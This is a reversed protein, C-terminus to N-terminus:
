FEGSLRRRKVEDESPMEQLVADSSAGAPNWNCRVFVETGLTEDRRKQLSEALAQVGDGDVKNFELCICRFVPSIAIVKALAKAGDDGIFNSSLDLEIHREDRVTGPALLADAFVRAGADGLRNVALGLVRLPSVPVVLAAALAAAGVLGVRNRGLDLESLRAGPLKCVAALESAGTPGIGNSGLRLIQM